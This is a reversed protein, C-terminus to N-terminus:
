NVSSSFSAWVPSALQGLDGLLDTTSTPGVELSCTSGLNEKREVMGMQRGPIVQPWENSDFHWGPAPVEGPRCSHSQPDLLRRTGRGVGASASAWTNDLGVEREDEEPYRRGVLCSGWHCQPTFSPHGM